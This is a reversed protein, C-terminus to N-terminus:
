RSTGDTEGADALLLLYVGVIVLSLAPFISYAALSLLAIGAADTAWRLAKVASARTVRPAKIKQFM